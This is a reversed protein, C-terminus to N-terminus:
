SASPSRSRRTEGRRAATVLSGYELFSDPDCLDAINERATRKGRAHAGPPQPAAPPTPPRTTCACCGSWTRASTTPIWLPRSQKRPPKSRRQNSMSSRSGEGVEDGTAVTLQRVIGSVTARIEHEMKLAEVAAVAQGRRVIDGEAVLVAVVVGQLTSVVAEAGPPAPRRGRRARGPAAAAGPRTEPGGASRRSRGFGGAANTALAAASWALLDAISKWMATHIRREDLASSALLADLIGCEDARGRDATGEAAPAPVALPLNGRQRDVQRASPRLASQDAPGRLLRWGRPHRPRRAVFLGRHRRRRAAALRGRRDGRRQRSGCPAAPPAPVRDQDLRARCARAMPSGCSRPWWTWVWSRRPSPTSWECGPIQGGHFLVSGGGAERADVLFEFTGLGRYDLSRALSVAAELIAARTNSALGFAPAVEVLKQQQRQLSCERDWLHAVGGQGDGIVQVEIHRAGRWCRRWMSTARGSPRPRRRRADRMPRRWTWAGRCRGCAGSAAAPWLRSWSRRMAAWATSSNRPRKWRSRGISARCSRCAWGAARRRAAAKDGLIALTAPTPGVFTIGAGECLSAFAASESLFGYGPHIADCDTERAITVIREADLYAAPGRALPM